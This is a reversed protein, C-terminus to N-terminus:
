IAYLKSTIIIPRPIQQLGQGIRVYLGQNERQRLERLRDDNQGWIEGCWDAKAETSSPYEDIKELQTILVTNIGVTMPGQKDKPKSIESKRLGSWSAAHEIIEQDAM